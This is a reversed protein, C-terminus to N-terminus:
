ALEKWRFEPYKDRFDNSLNKTAEGIIELSRTVAKILTEDNVFDEYNISKTKRIIYDIEDLIHKIFVNDDKM